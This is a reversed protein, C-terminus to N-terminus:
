LLQALREQLEKSRYPKHLLDFEETQKAPLADGTYGNTLLVPLQPRDKRVQRALEPGNLRGPLVVDCFLLGPELTRLRTFADTADAAVAVQYGMRELMDRSAIRVQPDDEVVLILQGEGHLEEAATGPGSIEAPETARPLLMTVTTGRSPRSALTLTGGSQRAFGYVMSLGLGTGQGAKTTFFPEFARARVEDTMGMGTDSVSIRVYDGPNMEATAERHTVHHNEASIHLDGGPAMADRANIALNLLAAQLQAADTHCPWVSRATQVTVTVKAGLTGVLLESMSELFDGVNLSTPRLPQQRSFALLHRTLRAGRGVAKLAADVQRLEGCDRSSAQLAELNGTVATLLNNFDHAIGGALQGVIELRQAHDLRQEMEHQRHEADLARDAEESARAGARDLIGLAVYIVTTGLLITALITSVMESPGPVLIELRGGIQLAFLMVVAIASVGAVGLALRRGVVVGAAVILLPIAAIGPSHLGERRFALGFILGLPLLIFSLSVLRYWGLHQLVFLISFVGAAVTWPGWRGGTLFVAMAATSVGAVATVLSWHTLTVAPQPRSGDTEPPRLFRPIHSGTDGDM